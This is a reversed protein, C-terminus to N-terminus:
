HVIEWFVVSTDAANDSNIVFSTANTITGLTINGATGGISQRTLQVIDGTRIETSSVTVTGAVLTATGRLIGALSLSNGSKVISLYGGGDNFDSITAGSCVNDEFVYRGGDRWYVYYGFGSITNERLVVKNRTTDTSFFAVVIGFGGGGTAQLTNDTIECYGVLSTTFTGLSFQIGNGAATVDRGFNQRVYLRDYVGNAETGTLTVGGPAPLAQFFSTTYNLCKNGQVTVNYYPGGVYIAIKASPIVNDTIRINTAPYGYDYSLLAIMTENRISPDDFTNGSVEIDQVGKQGGFDVNGEISYGNYGFDANASWSARNGIVKGRATASMRGFQGMVNTAVNNQITVNLADGYIDFVGLRHTGVNNRGCYEARNNEITLQGTIGSAFVACPPLAPDTTTAGIFSNNSVTVKGGMTQLTVFIWQQAGPTGLYTQNCVPANLNNNDQIAAGDGQYLWVFNTYMGTLACNRVTINTWAAVSGDAIVPTNYTLQNAAFDVETYVPMDAQRGDFNFGEIIANDSGSADILAAIRTAGSQMTHGFGVLRVNDLGNLSLPATLTTTGGPRFIVTGGSGAATIAQQPTSYQDSYVVRRNTTQVTEAVAGTGSQIGNVLAAGTSAALDATGVAALTTRATAADADDMLTRAFATQDALAWTGAGTAYPAKDAASTLAAIATLDADLPQKSSLISAAEVVDLGTQVRDAATAVADLGTQVRDAATAVADLGTQVRDAATAVADAATAIVDLGTQVRDAATAVRDAEAAAVAAALDVPPIARTYRVQIRTGTPPAVVFTLTTGIWTFDEGGVQTVGSISVDLNALVAPDEALVFDTQTGNGNFLELNADAYAAVTAISAPDVNTFGNASSNWAILRNAVPDPLTASASSSIPLKLSRGVQEILQQAIITIKDFADNIVRPYFGGNNTLVLPQLAEVDSTITLREGAPLAALRTVSGGPDNDQNSNLAVTYDVDLVLDSEIGLANTRVVRLDASTFVKFAFPFVTTADNGIFPGAKRTSSSIAL